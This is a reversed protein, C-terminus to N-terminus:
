QVVRGSSYGAQALKAKTEDAKAQGSLPGVRVRFVTGAGTKVSEVKAAFGKGGLEKALADARNKDSVATVQVWFVEGTAFKAIPDDAAPKAPEVKPADAKTPESKVAEPKSAEAKNPEPKPAVPKPAETKAPESKPAEAKASEAKSEGTPVPVVPASVQAQQGAPVDLNPNQPPQQLPQQPVKALEVPTDASPRAPVVLEVDSATQTPESEILAPVVIIAALFLAISGVLRRRSKRKLEDVQDNNVKNRATSRSNSSM